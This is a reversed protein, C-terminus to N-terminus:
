LPAPRHGAYGQFGDFGVTALQELLAADEVSTAILLIDLPRVIRVLSEVLFRLDADTAIGRAYGEALKIYEPLLRHVIRLAAGSLEFGDIAFRAGLARIEAAFEAALGLSHVVAHGGLEFVIREAFHPSAILRARLLTRFEGDELSQASVNVAISAALPAGGELLVWLRELMARDILPLLHHRSASPVFAVAPVASGDTEILRSMVESHIIDRGPLGFVNQGFLVFGGGQLAQEMRQRWEDATRAETSGVVLSHAVTTEDGRHLAEDFAQTAQTELDRWLPRQADFHVLGAAVSANPPASQERLLAAFRSCAAEAWSKMEGLGRNPVFVAFSAGQWRGIVQGEGANAALVEVLQEVLQDGKAAGQLRNIEELGVVSVIALAGSSVGTGEALLGSAQQTFGRRNLAGTLPDEFAQQYLRDARLSEAAIADRLKVSLDNMASGVRQLERSPADLQFDRFERRGIALAAQEIADLPRLIGQLFRRTAVLAILYLVALWMLSEVMTHWLQANAFRPHVVVLVRGMQRWGSSVLAEGSPADFPLMREIPAPVDDRVERLVRSVIVNGDVGVFKISAFHGRDFVPNIFTEALAADATKMGQGLSLALSTATEQAHAELQQQLYSRANQVFISEIGLVLLAFIISLGILLQRGLTV